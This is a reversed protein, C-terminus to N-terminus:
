SGNIGRFYQVWVGGLMGAFTSEAPLFKKIPEFPIGHGLKAPVHMIYAEFVLGDLLAQMALTPGGILWADQYLSAASGLTIGSRSIPLVARHVLKPMQEATRRGALLVARSKLVPDGGLVTLLRFLLKDESGTWTMDDDPGKALFGDASVAMILKLKM